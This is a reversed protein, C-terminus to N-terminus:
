LKAAEKLVEAYYPYNAASPIYDFIETLGYAGGVRELEDNDRLRQTLAILDVPHGMQRMKVVTRFIVAHHQLFYKATLESAARDILEPGGVLLSCLVGNGAEMLRSFERFAGSKCLSGIGAGLGLGTITCLRLFDRRCIHHSKEKM